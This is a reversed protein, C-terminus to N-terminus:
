NNQIQRPNLEYELTGQKKVKKVYTSIYEKSIEIASLSVTYLFAELFPTLDMKAKTM